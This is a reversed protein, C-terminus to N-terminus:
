GDLLWCSRQCSGWLWCSRWHSEWMSWTEPLMRCGWSQQLELVQGPLELVQPMLVLGFEPGPVGLFANPQWGPAQSLRTNPALVGRVQM